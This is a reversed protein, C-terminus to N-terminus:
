WATVVKRLLSSSTTPTYSLFHVKVGVAAMDAILQDGKPTDRWDDGKFLVDFRHRAFVEIKSGQDIVVEDVARLAAIIQLREALPVVPYRKKARYLSQDTAVGVILRDCYARSRLLMNLHGIHFMDWGGPVYGIVATGGDQIRLNERRPVNVVEAELRAVEEPSLLDAEAKKNTSPISTVDPKM